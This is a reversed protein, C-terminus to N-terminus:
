ALTDCETVEVSKRLCFKRFAIRSLWICQSTLATSSADVHNNRFTPRQVSISVM